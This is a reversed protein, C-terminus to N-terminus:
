SRKDEGKKSKPKNSKYLGSKTIEAKILKENDRKYAFEPTKKALEILDEKSPPNDLNM